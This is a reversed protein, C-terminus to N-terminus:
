KQDSKQVTNMLDRRSKESILESIVKEQTIYEKQAIYTYISLALSFISQYEELISFNSLLSEWNKDAIIRLRVTMTM